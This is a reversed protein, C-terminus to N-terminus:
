PGLRVRYYRVAANTTAGADLLNTTSEGPGAVNILQSLDAFNNSLIGNTQVFYSKGGVTSWTLRVSQSERQVSVIRFVSAANNPVTGARFENANSAGDGDADLAADASNAKNLSFQDEWWDPLGDTDTDVIVLNTLQVSTQGGYLVIFRAYGDTTTITGGSAANAFAGALPSGATLLTFSAGNTMVSAFNNILSVALAGSLTVNGGVNLFDFQTGPTDGGLELRLESSGTLVLHGTIDFRGPSRGPALKGSNTVTTALTGAGALTANSAISLSNSFTFTGGQLTITTANTGVGFRSLSALNVTVNPANSTITLDGNINTLSNLDITTASTNDSADVAGGATTLSGLNITTASTNGSADVSGGATVLSGLDVTTASTNDSADVDGGATTLSGIDITTASTNGSADVTGGATVLSSLDVTTASTNDSADVTGGATTLSGIDITTASTKGSADVSGSATVLSSLDITTASTNDRADVAGGATTLSGLNITTASTNGSADVTGGATVLSGLDITTASTNDSADVNGSVNTVAGANVTTLNSNGAVIFDGSLSNVWPLHFSTQQSDNTLTISDPAVFRIRANDHDCIILGGGPGLTLGAIRSFRAALAPGGDGSFGAINTGAFHTLQGTALDVKFVQTANAIYLTGANDVALDSVTGLNMNTAPGSGPLNTGGGAVTTIIGTAAIIRRVRNNSLDGLYLAHRARDVAIAYVDSLTANTAPGGNGTDGNTGNGALTTIIGTAPNIARIRFNGTDAFYLTGDPGIALGSPGAVSANTAPGGDGSFGGTGNGAITIVTGSGVPSQAWATHAPRILGALALGVFLLIFSRM